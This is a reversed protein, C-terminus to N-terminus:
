PSSFHNQQYLGRNGLRVTQTQDGSVVLYSFVSKCTIRHAGYIDWGKERGAAMLQCWNRLVSPPLQGEERGHIIKRGAAGM